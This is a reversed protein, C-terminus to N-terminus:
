QENWKCKGRAMRSTCQGPKLTCVWSVLHAQQLLYLKQCLSPHPFSCFTASHEGYAFRQLGIPWHWHPWWTWWRQLPRGAVYGGLLLPHWKRQAFPTIVSQFYPAYSLWLQLHMDYKSGGTLIQWVKMIIATLIALLWWPLNLLCVDTRSDTDVIGVEKCSQYIRAPWIFM